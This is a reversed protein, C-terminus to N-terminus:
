VFLEFNSHATLHVDPRTDALTACRVLCLSLCPLWSCMCMCICARVLLCYPVQQFLMCLCFLHAEIHEILLQSWHMWLPSRGQCEAVVAAIFLSVSVQQLAEARLLPAWHALIATM